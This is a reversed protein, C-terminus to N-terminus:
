LGQFILLSKKHICSIFLIIQRSWLENSFKKKRKRRWFKDNRVKAKTKNSRHTFDLIFKNDLTKETKEKEKWTSKEPVKKTKM